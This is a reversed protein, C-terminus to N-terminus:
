RVLDGWDDLDRGLWEARIMLGGFVALLVPAILRWLPGGWVLLGVIAATAGVLLIIGLGYTVWAPYAREGRRRRHRGWGFIVGVFIATVLASWVEIDSFFWGILLMTALMVVAAVFGALVPHANKIM